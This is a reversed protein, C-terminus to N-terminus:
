VKKAVVAALKTTRQVRANRRRTPRWSEHKDIKCRSIVAFDLNNLEKMDALAAKDKMANSTFWVLAKNGVVTKAKILTYDDRRDVTTIQVKVDEIWDGVMGLYESHNFLTKSPKNNAKKPKRGIWPRDAIVKKRIEDVGVVVGAMNNYKAYGAAISLAARYHTDNVDLDGLDIGALIRQVHAAVYRDEDTIEYQIFSREYPNALRWARDKTQPGVYEDHSRIVCVIAEIVRDIKIGVKKVLAMKDITGYEAAREAERKALAELDKAFGEWALAAKPDIGCFKELCTSGVTCVPWGEQSRDEVLIVSKRYRKHGCHDCTMDHNRFDALDDETVEAGPAIHVFCKDDVGSPELHGIVRFDGKMAIVDYEVDLIVFPIAFTIEEGNVTKVIEEPDEKRNIIEPPAIGLKAARKALRAVLKEVAEVQSEHVRVSTFSREAAVQISIQDSM